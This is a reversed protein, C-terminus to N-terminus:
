FDYKVGHLESVKFFPKYFDSTGEEKEDVGAEM